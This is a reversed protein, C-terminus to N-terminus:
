VLLLQVGRLRNMLGRVTRLIGRHGSNRGGVSEPIMESQVKIGYLVTCDIKTLM